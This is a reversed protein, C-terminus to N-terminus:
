PPDVCRAPGTAARGPRRRSVLVCGSLVLVALVLVVIAVSAHAAADPPTMALPGTAKSPRM